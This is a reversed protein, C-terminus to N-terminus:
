SYVTGMELGKTMDQESCLSSDQRKVTDGGTPWSDPKPFLLSTHKEWAAKLDEVM